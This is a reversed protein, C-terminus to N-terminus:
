KDLIEALLTVPDNENQYFYRNIFGEINRQENRKIDIEDFASFPLVQATGLSSISEYLPSNGVRFLVTPKHAIIPLVLTSFFGFCGKSKAILLAMNETERVWEIGADDPLWDSHFSEPHLKVILRSNQEKCWNLLGLYFDTMEERTKIHEGFRNDAFPQDILLYYDDTNNEELLNSIDKNLRFLEPNGIYRCRAEIDGDLERHIEANGPTYCIYNQPKRAEFRIRKSAYNFGEKRLLFLYIFLKPLLFIDSMKLSNKLFSLTSFEFTPQSVPIEEKQRNQRSQIERQRYDAYNHYLGHQLMFTPVGTKGAALNLAIALGSTVDMFVIRDPSIQNLLDYGGKFESWYIIKENTYVQSEQSPHIYFLYVLEFQDKLREFPDIWQKRYYGFNVLLRVKSMDFLAM